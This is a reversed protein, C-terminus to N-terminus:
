FDMNVRGYYYGGNMPVQASASDYILVGYSALYAPVKRPRVNFIDNAGVAVHWRPTIHYGIELDTLWRPTNKFQAFCANSGRLAAGTIPCIASAPTWDQYTLMGVTEGYRTQRLNMDWKGVTYYANLVIKSRPSESTLYATTQANLLPRGTTSTGNHTLTTRNINLAMTLTLTGYRHMRYLYDAKIDIGQTRTSAGNSLYYASFGTPNSLTAGGPLTYGMEEIASIAQAGVVTGGQVIRDRLNIQYVDSEVHLNDIPELVIGGSANTSREPKLPSAGLIKAADSSVPLLGSASTPGVSFASYHQEALTPARFGNSITARIAVRKTFDYRASVKGTETNGTDTYHEFRGAVDVDLKSLPHLDGDLYGAWVDRSWSGSNQPAAGAYGQTGGAQYSPPNGSQIDYMELRHQGGFALTVPLVNAIRLRRRFDLNNSWLANRYTEARVTTPSFGCGNSSYYPSAVNITTCASSLMGTNVTNKVGIDDEDAGYETNVDWDFGFFNDGKIGLNTQYDNEEITEIPSFGNPYITPAISPVRVNQYSEGHRHAYTILGYFEVDENIPKGFNLGLNERTEEPTSMIFNSNPPVPIAGPLIGYYGSTNAGPPAYSLLRHDQSHTFFHDVHYYQGSLHLYGDSGLKMGGDADFQTSWGTGAYANAGTEGSLHLGNNQKKTIINVVGAIADSGYLAAAGDELVEIHDIANAPIMNLDVPTSAFQPGPDQTVAGSVHRPKGDVLVLVENPNLGRMRITATLATTDSGRTQINIAPNVRALADALNMQGTRRLAASTVVSVPSSSDRARRSYGHTGTVIIAEQAGQVQPGSTGQSTHAKAAHVPANQRSSSSGARATRSSAGATSNQARAVPPVIVVALVGLSAYLLISRVSM